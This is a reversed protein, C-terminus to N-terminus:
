LKRPRSPSPSPQRQLSCVPSTPRRESKSSSARKRLKRKSPERGSPKEHKRAPPTQAKVEFPRSHHAECTLRSPQTTQIWGDRSSSSSSSSSSPSSPDPRIVVRWEDDDSSVHDGTCDKIVPRM